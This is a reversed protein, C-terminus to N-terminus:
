KGLRTELEDRLNSLGVYLKGEIVFTPTASVGAIEGDMKDSEIKQAAGKGAVCAKLKDRDLNLQMGLDEFYQSPDDLGTWSTQSGFLVDHYPWFKGQAAACEAFLSAKLANKHGPLPFHKHELSVKGSYTKLLEDVSKVVKSCAPCQFDTYELIRVPADVAGKFRAGPQIQVPKKLHAKYSAEKVAKVALVCLVVVLLSIIIKLIKV